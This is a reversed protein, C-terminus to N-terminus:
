VTNVEGIELPDLLYSAFRGMQLVSTRTKTRTQNLESGDLMKDCVHVFLSIAYIKYPVRCIIALSPSAMGCLTLACLQGGTIDSAVVVRCGAM